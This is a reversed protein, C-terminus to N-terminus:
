LSTASRVCLQPSVSRPSGEGTWWDYGIVDLISIVDSGDVAANVPLDMPKFMRAAKESLRTSGELGDPCTLEPLKRLSM